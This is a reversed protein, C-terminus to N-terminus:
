PKASAHASGAPASCVYWRHDRASVIVKKLAGVAELQEAAVRFTRPSIGVGHLPGAEAWLKPLGIADAESAPLAALLHQKAEATKLDAESGRVIYGDDGLEIVLREPIGDFRGIGDLERVRDRGEGGLRSIHLVIDVAGTFATSGRGSEGTEGGARRDHRSVVVALGDGAAFLVHDMAALAAGSSNEDDGSLGAFRPLTDIVIGIADVDRTKSRAALMVAPWDTGITDAYRLVHLEASDALRCRELMQRFAPDNEETLWVWPGCKTQRDLFSGGSLSARVLSGIFTSKGALKAKGDVETIGGAVVLGDVVWDPHKPTADAIERATRFRLSTSTGIPADQEDSPANFRAGQRVRAPEYIERCGAIAKAITMEGYTAAGHREDWKDRLLGSQRFLRDMRSADRGTWFALHDCLALDAASDDGAHSSTDGNWLREFDHGNRAACARKILEEDDIDLPRTLGPSPPNSTPPFLEVYWADLEAQREEIDASTGALHEWTVTFFRGYDYIELRRGDAGMSKRCQTGPKKAKIWGRVGTSSPTIEWYTPFRDIVKQAWDEIEGTKPDRCHDLDIACFPDNATVVFGIGHHGALRYVATTAEYDMWTSPDTSSARRGNNALYPIKTTEGDANTELRWAIWQDRARLEELANM